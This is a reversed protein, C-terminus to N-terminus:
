ESAAKSSYAVFSVGCLKADGFIVLSSEGNGFFQSSFAYRGDDILMDILYGDVLLDFKLSSSPAVEIYRTDEKAGSNSYIEALMNKREVKILGRDKFYSVCFGGDLMFSWDSDSGIEFRLRKCIAEPLEIKRPGHIDKYGIRSGEYADLGNPFSQKIFPPVFSLVRPLVLSGAYGDVATPYNREWMSEFATLLFENGNSLTHAAYFDFGFDFETEEGVPEFRGTKLDAHGYLYVSSHLNQFRYPDASKRFQPSFILYADDKGEFPFIIDPCEMIGEGTLDSHYFESVFEFREGDKSKFLLISSGNDLCRCGALIYISGDRIFAKPDRFDKRSYRSPLIDPDIVPNQPFKEFNRGDKSKALCQVQRGEQAGTYYSYITGDVVISSGSFCGWPLEYPETPKLAIGDEQFKVGDKSVFHLWHMPGWEPKYPYHQAYLHYLGDKFCFGNPDNIWGKEPTIHFLPKRINM